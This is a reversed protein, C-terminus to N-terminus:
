VDLAGLLVHDFYNAAQTTSTTACAGAFSHGLLTPLRSCAGLLVPLYWWDTAPVWYYLCTGGTLPLCLRFKDANAEHQLTTKQPM